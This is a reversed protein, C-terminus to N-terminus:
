NDNEEDCECDNFFQNCQNCPLVGNNFWDMRDHKKINDIEYNAYCDALEDKSMDLAQDIFNDKLIEWDKEQIKNRNIM